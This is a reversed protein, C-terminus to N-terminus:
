QLPKLKLTLGFDASGDPNTKINEFPLAVDTFRKESALRNRFSLVNAESPASGVISVTGERITLKKIAVEGSTLEKLRRFFEASHTAGAKALFVKRVLENFERADAELDELEALEEPTGGPPVTKELKGEERSLLLDVGAFLVITFAAVTLIINRWLAIFNLIRADRYQVQVPIDTLSLFTDEARPILGRLAAGMVTHASLSAEPMGRPVFPIAKLGFNEEVLKKLEGNLDGGLLIVGSVTGGWRGSYFNLVKQIERSLFNKFDGTSMEKGGIEERITHWPHFHSFYLNREKMLMLSLGDTLVSIVLHSAVGELGGREAILRAISLAPFEVAAVSFGAEMSAEVFAQVPAAEAFAGLIEIQGGGSFSEGIKQWDAHVKSFEIPSLMQLNLRAAENLRDRELLPTSFTQTYVLEAPLVLVVHFPRRSHSAQARLARLASVFKARDKLYGGEIVSPPLRLSAALPTRGERILLFRLVGDALELGGVAPLPNLLKLYKGIAPPIKINM